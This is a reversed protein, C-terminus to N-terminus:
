RSRRRVDRIAALIDSTRVGSAVPPVDLPSGKRATPVVSFTDGGRRRILVEERKAQNLVESLNQRAQSFSYLKMTTGGIEGEYM